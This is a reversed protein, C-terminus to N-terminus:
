EIMIEAGIYNGSIKFGCMCNKEFASNLDPRMTNISIESYQKCCIEPNRFNGRLTM